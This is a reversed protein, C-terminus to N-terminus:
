YISLQVNLGIEIITLYIMERLAQYIGIYPAYITSIKAEEMLRSQNQTPNEVQIEVKIKM